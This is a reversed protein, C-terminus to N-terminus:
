VAYLSVGHKDCYAASSSVRESWFRVLDNARQQDIKAENLRKKAREHDAICQSSFGKFDEPNLRDKAIFEGM